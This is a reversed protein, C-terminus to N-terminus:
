VPARSRDGTQGALRRVIGGALRRIRRLRRRLGTVEDVVNLSLNGPGTTVLTAVRAL